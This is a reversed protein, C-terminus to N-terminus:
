FLRIIMVCLAIVSLLLLLPSFRQWLFRQRSLSISKEIQRVSTKTLLLGSLKEMLKIFHQHGLWPHMNGLHAVLKEQFAFDNNLLEIYGPQLYLNLRQLLFDRNVGYPNSLFLQKYLKNVDELVYAANIQMVTFYKGSRQNYAHRLVPDKLTDYAEKVERFYSAAWANTPNKDPHYRMAMRRYAKRIETETAEPTLELIDYYSHQLSQM